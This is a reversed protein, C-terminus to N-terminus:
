FTPKDLESDEEEKVVKNVASKYRESIALIILVIILPIIFFLLCLDVLGMDGAAFFIM